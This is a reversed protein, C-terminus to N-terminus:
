RRNGIMPEASVAVPSNMSDNRWAPVLVSTMDASMTTRPAPSPQRMWTSTSAACFATGWPSSPTAVDPTVNKRVIPAANPVAINPAIRALMM